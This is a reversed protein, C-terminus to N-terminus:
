LSNLGGLHCACPFTGLPIGHKQFVTALQAKLDSDYLDFHFVNELTAVLSDSPFRNMHKVINVLERLSYPYSLNGADVLARPCIILVFCFSIISLLSGSTM